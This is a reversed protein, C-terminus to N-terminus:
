KRLAFLAQRREELSRTDAKEGETKIGLKKLALQKEYEIVEAFHTTFLEIERLSADEATALEIIKKRVAQYAIREDDTVVAGMLENVYHQFRFDERWAYLTSSSLGNKTCFEQVTSGKHKRDYVWNRAIEIQRDTLSEPPKVSDMHAFIDKEAM